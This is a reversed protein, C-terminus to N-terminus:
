QTQAAGHSAVKTTPTQDLLPRLKGEGTLLKPTRFSRVAKALQLAKISSRV